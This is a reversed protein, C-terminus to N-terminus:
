EEEKNDENGNWLLANYHHFGILYMPSLKSNDAFDEISIKAMIENFHKTYKTMIWSEKELYPELREEIIQWTQYPRASFANWLRRANTVRKKDKEKDYTDREAKDAIALLCGFLYSRDRCTPDYAMTIEGKHYNTINNELQVKRILACAYEITMMHNYEKEYALPNSAKNVLTPVIDGPLKRGESICPLLRLITDGLIRKDCELQGNQETGYLCAAIQPLSCSNPSYKHKRRRWATDTHWKELNEYFESEYFESYIAISLRGKSAADLGMIMVKSDKPFESKNGMMKKHLMRSYESMSSYEEEEGDFLPIASELISPVFDLASNWVILTLSDYTNSHRNVLWKLANHMKQSYEYSVSIAEDSNNFRGRYTYNKEDNSSILKANVARSDSNKVKTKVIGDPHKNTPLAIKGTAYCLDTNKSINNFAIFSDYLSKDKWTRSEHDLEKYQVIFRVFCKGVPQKYQKVKLKQTSEDVLLIGSKICDYTVSNKVVYSYVAQIGKHTFKSDKWNGLIELYDSHNKDIVTIYHKYNEETKETKGEPDPNIDLPIYDKLDGAIYKLSENLPYPPGGYVGTKPKGTDPIITLADEENVTKAIVFEGDENITIEIQAQATSHSIPLMSEGGKTGVALEYVKYLENTWSM